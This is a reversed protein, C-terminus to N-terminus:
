KSETWFSFGSSCPFQCRAINCLLTWRMRQKLRSHARHCCLFFVFFSLLFWFFLSIFRVSAGHLWYTLYFPNQFIALLTAAVVVKITYCRWRPFFPWTFAVRKYSADISYQISKRNKRKQRLPYQTLATSKIYHSRHKRLASWAHISFTSLIFLM